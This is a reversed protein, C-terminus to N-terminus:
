LTKDGELNQHGCQAEMKEAWSKLQANQDREKQLLDRWKKDREKNERNNIGEQLGIGAGAACVLSIAWCVIWTWFDENNGGGPPRPKPPKM